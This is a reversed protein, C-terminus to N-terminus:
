MFFIYAIASISFGLLAGCVVEIMRHGLSENLTPILKQLSEKDSSDENELYEVLHNIAKAHLGASWRVGTADYMVVLAVVFALAFVPSNFGYLNFSMLLVSCVVAAHSSPMGGAGALRKKNFSKHKVFDLINKILQALVWSFVAVNILPNSLLISPNM